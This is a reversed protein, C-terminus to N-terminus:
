HRCKLSCKMVLPCNKSSCVLKLVTVLTDQKLTYWYQSASLVGSRHQTPSRAALSPFSSTAPLIRSRAEVLFNKVSELRGRLPSAEMMPWEM